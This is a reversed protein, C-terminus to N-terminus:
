GKEAPLLWESTIDFPLSCRVRISLSLAPYKYGYSPSYWGLVSDAAVKGSLLEGARVLSVESCDPLLKEGQWGVILRVQGRPSELCLEGNTHTAKLDWPWDPLLWHLRISFESSNELNEQAYLTDKVWWRGGKFGTMSRRHVVGLRRYGDHEASIREWAGDPAKEHELLRAQAWDLWLFRGARTMQDQDNVTVTNHVCTRSLANDWPPAANYLYTGPDLALNRGRWWLDVHLQDAHGPRSSFRATRLYAWSHDLRVTKVSSEGSGDTDELPSIGSLWLGMEDWNGAAMPAKGLFAKGAAQVVPRFEWVPGSALPLIYASDNPGLNPVSGSEDDLLDLLWRTAAVLRDSSKTPFPQGDSIAAVWLALQLMLRHYNASNQTYGGDAAIQSALGKHFERWGQLRWGAAMPHENLALGATFLGAAESLLHNNNQAQSYAKSPPIRGAHAAIAQGLRVMRAPTSHPSGAFTQAAFVIAILRLAAEQASTWQAGQYAPNADLFTELYKWFSEPYRENGTLWYARGLVIAWGFRGAEWTWKIDKELIDNSRKELETWHLKPGRNELELPVPEGGFLRVRGALIEDAETMLAGCGAGGLISRLHDRDPLEMLPFLRFCADPLNTFRKDDSTQRRLYGSHLQLRYLAYLSMQRLGLEGLAKLALSTRHKLTM